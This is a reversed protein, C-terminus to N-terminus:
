GKVALSKQRLCLIQIGPFLSSKILLSKLALSAIDLGIRIDVGKQKLDYFVDNEQLQNITIERRLLAKVKEPRIEWYGSEKLFGLRLAVKRKKKLEEFLQLRFQAVPTKLFDIAKKTIPNHSKKSFPFSDYYFIRYLDHRVPIGSHKEECHQFAMTHLRKSVIEPKLATGDHFIFRYRKLFFGGDILVAVKVKFGQLFLFSRPETDRPYIFPVYM